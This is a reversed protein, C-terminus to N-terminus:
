LPKYSNKSIFRTRNQWEWIGFLIWWLPLFLVILTEKLGLIQVSAVISVIGFFISFISNYSIFIKSATKKRVEQVFTFIMSLVYFSIIILVIVNGKDTERTSLYQITSGFLIILLVRSVIWFYHTLKFIRRLFNMM